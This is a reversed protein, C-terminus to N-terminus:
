LFHVVWRPVFVIKSPLALLWSRVIMCVSIKWQPNCLGIAITSTIIAHVHRRPWRNQILWYTEVDLAELEKTYEKNKFAAIANNSNNYYGVLLRPCYSISFHLCIYVCTSSANSANLCSIHFSCQMIFLSFYLLSPFSFWQTISGCKCQMIPWHLFTQVDPTRITRNGTTMSAEVTPFGTVPRMGIFLSQSFQLQRTLIVILM